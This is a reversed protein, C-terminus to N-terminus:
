ITGLRAELQTGRGELADAYTRIAVVAAEVTKGQLELARIQKYVSVTLFNEAENLRVVAQLPNKGLEAFKKATEEAAPGGARELKIAAAAAKSLETAAVQGSAALQTLVAAAQGQTGAVAAQAKAMEKLAGTTTGAINGTLVLARNYADTEASGQKYALAAAGVAVAAGGLAVNLPTLLGVVGRVANGVGGYVATLQSGQQVLATLPNVGGQLQIFFDQLQQGAQFTQQALKGQSAGVKGLSNAVAEAGAQTQQVGDLGIKIRIGDAM